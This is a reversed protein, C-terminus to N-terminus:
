FVNKFVALASLLCNEIILFITVYTHVLSRPFVHLVNVQLNDKMIEEHGCNYLVKKNDRYM